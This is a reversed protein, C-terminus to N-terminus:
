LDEYCKKSVLREIKEIGFYYTLEIKIIKPIYFMDPHNEQCVELGDFMEM